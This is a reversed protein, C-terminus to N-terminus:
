FITQPRYDDTDRDYHMLVLPVGYAACAAIVAALAATLGTVYVILVSDGWYIEDDTYSAANIARGAVRSVGVEDSIFAAAKDYMGDFDFVDAIEDFIYTDVPLEHRGRVLGAKIPQKKEALRM